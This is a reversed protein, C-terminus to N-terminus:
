VDTFHFQLSDIDEAYKLIEGGYANKKTGICDIFTVM